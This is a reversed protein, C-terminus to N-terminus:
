RSEPAFLVDAESGLVGIRAQGQFDFQGLTPRKWFQLGREGLLEHLLVQPIPVLAPCHCRRVRATPGPM